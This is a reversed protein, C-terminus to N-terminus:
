RCSDPLCLYWYGFDGEETRSKGVPKFHEFGFMKALFRERNQFLGPVGIIRSEQGMGRLKGLILHGYTYYGHLLFSNSGLIWTERPLFELDAPEIRVCNTIEGDEFPCMKTGNDFFYEVSIGDPQVARERCESASMDEPKELVDSTESAEKTEPLENMRNKATDATDEATGASESMEIDKPAEADESEADAVLLEATHLEAAYREAEVLSAKSMVYQEGTAHVEPVAKDAEDAEGVRNADYEGCEALEPVGQDDWSSGILGDPLLIMIGNMQGVSLGTDGVVAGPLLIRDECRGGALELSSGTPIRYAQRGERYYFEVPCNGSVGSRLRISVIMKAAQDRIELKAYGVNEGKVGDRYEYLYSVLRQYGAM